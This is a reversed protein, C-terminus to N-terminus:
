MGEKAAMAAAIRDAEAVTEESAYSLEGYGSVSYGILQALQMRDEDSFDMTALENLGCGLPTAYDLLYRVISNRRFRIVGHEDFEIPQAPHRGRLAEVDARLQDREAALDLVWQPNCQMEMRMRKAMRAQGILPEYAVEKGRAGM